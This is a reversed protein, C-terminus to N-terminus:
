PLQSAARGYITFYFCSGVGLRSAALAVSMLPGAPGRIRLLTKLPQGFIRLFKMSRFNEFNKRWFFFDMEHLDVGGTGKKSFIKWFVGINSLANKLFFFKLYIYM